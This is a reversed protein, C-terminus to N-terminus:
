QPKGAVGFVTDVLQVNDCHYREIFGTWNPSQPWRGSNNVFNVDRCHNMLFLPQVAPKLHRQEARWHCDRFTVREIPQEQRGALISRYPARCQIDEFTIDQIKGLLSGSHRRTITMRVPEGSRSEGEIERLDARINRWIIHSITGGDRMWAAMARSSGILDINEFWVASIDELTETGIKLATKRTMIVGDRFTINRTSQEVGALRTAKVAAADDGCYATLRTVLVDQSCDPNLGDSNRVGWDNFIKLNDVRVNRCGLLHTNWVAPNALVVNQIRLDTCELAFLVNVKRGLENRLIHGNGEVVGYGDLSSGTSHDFYLLSSHSKPTTVYDDPDCSGLLLAGPALWIRTHDGVRLTGTRYTGPGVYLTAGGEARACADLAAQIQKTQIGEHDKQAYEDLDIVGPDDPNPAFTNYYDAVIALPPMDGGATRARVIVSGVPQMQFAAEGSSSAKEAEIFRKPDIRIEMPAEAKVQVRVGVTRQRGPEALSHTHQFRAFYIPEIAGAQEVPVAVGDVAVTYPSDEVPNPVPYTRVSHHRPEAAQGSGALVLAACCYIVPLCVRKWRFTLMILGTKGLFHNRAGLADRREAQTQSLIISADSSQLSLAPLRSYGGM